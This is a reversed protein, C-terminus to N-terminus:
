DGAPSGDSRTMKDLGLLIRVLNKSSVITRGIQTLLMQVGKESFREAAAERERLCKLKRSRVTRNGGRESSIFLDKFLWDSVHPLKRVPWGVANASLGIARGEGWSFGRVQLKRALWDWIQLFQWERGSDRSVAFCAEQVFDAEEIQVGLLDAAETLLRGRRGASNLRFRNKKQVEREIERRVKGALSGSHAADIGPPLGQFLIRPPTSVIRCDADLFICHSFSKLAEAIAFRKDHYPYWVGKNRHHVARVNPHGNFESPRDTLVLLPIGRSFVHLDSALMGSLLRYQPGLALTTFCVDPNM